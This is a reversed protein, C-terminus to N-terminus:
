RKKELLITNIHINAKYTNNCIIYFVLWVIENGFIILYVNSKNREILNMNITGYFYAKWEIMAVNHNGFLM